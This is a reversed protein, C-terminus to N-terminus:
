RKEALFLREANGDGGRIPSDTWARVAWGEGELWDEFRGVAADV